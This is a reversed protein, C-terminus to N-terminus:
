GRRWSYYCSHINFGFLADRARRIRHLGDSLTRLLLRRIFEHPDLRVIKTKGRHRDDPLPVSGSRGSAGHSLTGSPAALC